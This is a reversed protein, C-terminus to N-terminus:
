KQTPTQTSTQVQALAPSTPPAPGKQVQSRFLPQYRVQSPGMNNGSRPPGPNRSRKDNLASCRMCQPRYVNRAGCGYCFVNRTAVCCDQYTHGREECNWCVCDTFRDGQLASVQARPDIVPVQHQGPGSMMLMESGCTEYTPQEIGSGYYEVPYAQASAFPNSNAVPMVTTMAVTGAHIEAISGHEKTPGTAVGLEDVARNRGGSAGKWFGQSIWLDEYKLCVDTLEDVSQVQHMSLVRRLQPDANARLLHLLSNDPLPERLRFSLAEIARCFDDFREGTRQMRQGMATRIEEDTERSAFKHILAARFQDWTALRQKRRFGWYWEAARDTLLVHFTGVMEALAVGSSAAMEEVRFVFEDIALDKPSGAYRVTWQALTKGAFQGADRGTRAGEVARPPVYADAPGAYAGRPAQAFHPAPPPIRLWADLAPVNLYPHQNREDAFVHSARNDGVAEQMGRSGSDTTARGVEAAVAGENPIAQSVLQRAQAESSERQRSPQKPIAGTAGIAPFERRRAQEYMDHHQTMYENFSVVLTMLEVFLQEIDAQAPRSRRLRDVRFAVHSVRSSLMLTRDMDPLAGLDLLLAKLESLVRRLNIVETMEDAFDHPVVPRMGSEAVEAEMRDRLDRFEASGRGVIGRIEFEVALEDPRLHSPNCYVPPTAM